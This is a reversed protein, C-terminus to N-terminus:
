EDLEPIRLVQGPYIKDPHTLMPKNAEFILTHKDGKGKGYHAEAIKWLNDGKKVTYFVPDKAPAEAVKLEAAEVKSVGLTNGVAVIAKEFISQDKVEGSLIVKDGQVKVDVKETGLSHSELAKKLEEADPAKEEDVLGLKVGVSKVFDFVSM